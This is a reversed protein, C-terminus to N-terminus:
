CLIATSGDRSGLHSGSTAHQVPSIFPRPQAVGESQLAGGRVDCGGQSESHAGAVGQTMIDM